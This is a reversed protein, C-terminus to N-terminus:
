LFKKPQQQKRTKKYNEIFNTLDFEKKLDEFKEKEIYSFGMFENVCAKGYVQCPFNKIKNDSFVIETGTLASYDKFFENKILTMGNFIEPFIGVPIIEGRAARNWIDNLKEISKGMNKVDNKLANLSIEMTRIILSKDRVEDSDEIKFELRRELERIDRKLGETEGSKEELEKKLYFNTKELIRIRERVDRLEESVVEDKVGSLNLGEKGSSSSIERAKDESEYVGPYIKKVANSISHGKIVLHKVDDGYGMASIKEFKNKLKKFAYIAASLSDRQHTDKYKYEKTMDVKESVLISTEPIFIEADLSAALRYVFDPVHDVDSAIVSVRGFGILYKIVENLGINKSSFLNVLKGEFNLIAVGVTTGPDIGVILYM